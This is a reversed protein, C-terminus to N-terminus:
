PKQLGTTQCGKLKYNRGSVDIQRLKLKLSKKRIHDGISVPDEAYSIPM